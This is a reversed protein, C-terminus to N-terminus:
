YHYQNSALTRPSEGEVELRTLEVVCDHFFQEQQQDTAAEMEAYARCDAAYPSSTEEAQVSAFCLALLGIFLLSRM